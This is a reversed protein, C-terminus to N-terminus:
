ELLQHGLTVEVAMQFAREIENGDTVQNSFRVGPDAARRDVRNNEELQLQDEEKLSQARVALEHPNHGVAETKPPIQAVVQALRKGIM